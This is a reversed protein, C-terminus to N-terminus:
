KKLIKITLKESLQKNCFKNCALETISEWLNKIAINAHYKATTVENIDEGCHTILFDFTLVKSAETEIKRVLTLFKDSVLFLVEHSVQKVWSKRYELFTPHKAHDEKSGWHAVLELLAFREPFRKIKKWAM